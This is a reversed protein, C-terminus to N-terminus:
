AARALNALRGLPPPLLLANVRAEAVVGFQQKTSYATAGLRLRRVGLNIALDVCAALSMFYTATNLTRTYDLGLWKAILEDQSRVLVVCGIVDGSQRALLVHLDSGLVTLARQLLDDAYPTDANHRRQVNEILTWLFPFEQPPVTAPEITIGEREARRRMRRMEHRDHGPRAAVYDDFSSWAIDLTTNQWQSVPTCGAARLSQWTSAELPVHGVTTFLARERFALQRVGGLLAPTLQAEDVGPRFVLGCDSAIPVGCRVVPLRRLMWGARQQLAPNAFRRDVACVAAAELQGARRLLLYRPEYDVVASETFRLWRHDVFARSGCVANWEAPAAEEISTLVTLDLEAM